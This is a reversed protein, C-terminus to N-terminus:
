ICKQKVVDCSDSCKECRTWLPKYGVLDCYCLKEKNIDCAKSRLNYCWTNEKVMNTYISIDANIVLGNSNYIAPIKTGAKTIVTTKLKAKIREILTTTRLEKKNKGDSVVLKWDMKGDYFENLIKSINRNLNEGYKKEDLYWLSILQAVDADVGDIKVPTRLLNLLLYGHEQTASIENVKNKIQSSHFSFIITALVMIIILIIFAVWDLLTPAQGWAAKKSIRLHYFKSKNM